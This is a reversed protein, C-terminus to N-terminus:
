GHAVKAESQSGNSALREIAAALELWGRFEEVPGDTAALRGSIPESGQDLELRLSIRGGRTAAPM